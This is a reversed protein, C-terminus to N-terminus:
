REEGGGGRGVKDGKGIGAEQLLVRARSVQEDFEKFTMFQFPGGAPPRAGLFLQSAYRKCARRTPSSPLFFVILVSLYPRRSLRNRVVVFPPIAQRRGVCM